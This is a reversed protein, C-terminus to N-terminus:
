ISLLTVCHALYLIDLELGVSSQFKAEFRIFNNNHLPKESIFANSLMKPELLLASAGIPWAQRYLGLPSTSALCILM